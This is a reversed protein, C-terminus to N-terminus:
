GRRSKGRSTLIHETNASNEAVKCQLVPLHSLLVFVNWSIFHIEIQNPLKWTGSNSFGGFNIELLLVGFNIFILSTNILWVM